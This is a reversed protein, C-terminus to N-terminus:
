PGEETNTKLMSSARNSTWLNKHEVRRRIESSSRCQDPFYSRWPRHGERDNGPLKPISLTMRGAILNRYSSFPLSM